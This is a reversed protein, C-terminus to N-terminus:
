GLKQSTECVTQAEPRIKLGITPHITCATNERVLKSVQKCNYYNLKIFRVVNLYQLKPSYQSGM